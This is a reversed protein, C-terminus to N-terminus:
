SVHKEVEIEELNFHVDVAENDVNKIIKDMFDEDSLAEYLMLRILESQTINLEKSLEIIMQKNGLCIKSTIKEMFEGKSCIYNYANECVFFFLDVKNGLGTM